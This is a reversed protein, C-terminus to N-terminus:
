TSPVTMITPDTDSKRLAHMSRKMVPGVIYFIQTDRCETADDKGAEKELCAGPPSGALAPTTPRSWRRGLAAVGIGVGEDKWRVEEAQPILCFVHFSPVRPLVDRINWGASGLKSAIIGTRPLPLTESPGVGATKQEKEEEPCPHVAMNCPAPPNPSSVSSDYSSLCPREQVQVLVPVPRDRVKRYLRCLSSINM